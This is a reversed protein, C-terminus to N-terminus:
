TRNRLPFSIEYAGLSKKKIGEDFHYLTKINNEIESFRGEQTILLFYMKDNHVTNRAAVFKSDIIDYAFQISIMNDIKCHIMDAYPARYITYPIWLIIDAFKLARTFHEYNERVNSKKQGCEIGITWADKMELPPYAAIDFKTFGITFEEYIHEEPVGFYKQLLVKGYEKLLKHRESEGKNMPGHLYKKYM